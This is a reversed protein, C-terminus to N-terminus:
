HTEAWNKGFAPKGINLDCRFDFYDHTIQMARAAAEALLERTCRGTLNRAIQQEDHAWILVAFDGDWGHKLGHEEELIRATEVIWKKCIIAGCSQLLTNLAAHDSRVFLRRGDLGILRKLKKVKEAVATVLKGLAPINKLLKRKSGAGADRNKGVTKGLKENGAGYILAYMFTKACNRGKQDKGGIAYVKQPEYGLAKSTISHVDTGEAEKGNVVARAYEGGDFPSMYHGLCCLELSSADFGGLEWGDPVYFLERCEKGWRSGVKPVQTINIHSHSARSTIAGNPNIRHFIWGNKEVKLWAQSGQDKGEALQDCRKQVLFLEGLRKAEPYDLRGLVTEDIQPKGGKTFEDPVWGYKSKFRDAIHDRSRPNFEVMKIKTFAVGKTYGYAKSNVKSVKEGQSVVWPPFLDKMENALGERIQVLEGYLKAAKKVDFCIGNREIQACLWAVQHELEIARPSYNKSLCLHYLAVGVRVDSVCRDEMYQTWESWDTIDTGEKKVGLRYGWAEISHRGIMHKPFTSDPKEVRRFDTEKIDSFVLRALVLSDQAKKKDFVIGPKVHEIVPHDYVISNHGVYLDASLLERIGENISRKGNNQDNFTEHADTDLDVLV